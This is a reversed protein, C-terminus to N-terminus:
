EKTYIGLMTLAECFGKARLYLERNAEDDGMDRCMLATKKLEVARAKVRSVEEATLIHM